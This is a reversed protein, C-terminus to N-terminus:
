KASVNSFVLVMGNNTIALTQDEIEFEATGSLVQTVMSEQNMRADECAMLTSAVDSFSVEKKDVQYKGGLSNCGGNGTLTGDGGFTLTAEAGSLAPNMSEVPGYAVLKWDGILASSGSQSTCASCVVIFIILLPLYKKM